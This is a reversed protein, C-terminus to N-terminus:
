EDNKLAKLTVAGVWFPTSLIMAPLSFLIAFPIEPGERDTVEAFWRAWINEVDAALAAQPAATVLGLIAVGSALIKTMKSM